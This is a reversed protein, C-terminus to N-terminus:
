KCRNDKAAQSNLKDYTKFVRKDDFNKSLEVTWDVEEPNGKWKVLYEVQKWEMNNQGGMIEEVECGRKCEHSEM